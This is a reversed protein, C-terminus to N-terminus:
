STSCFGAAVDQFAESPVDAAPMSDSSDNTLSAEESGKEIKLEGFGEQSPWTSAPFPTLVKPVPDSIM